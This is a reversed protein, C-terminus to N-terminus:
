RADELEFGVEDPTARCCAVKKQKALSLLWLFPSGLAGGRRPERRQEVLCAEEYVRVIRQAAVHEFM